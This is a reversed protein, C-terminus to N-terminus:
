MMAIASLVGIMGLILGGSVIFILEGCVGYWTETDEDEMQKKVEPSFSRDFINHPHEETAQPNAM